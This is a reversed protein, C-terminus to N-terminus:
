QETEVTWVVTKNPGHPGLFADSTCTFVDTGDDLVVPEGNPEFLRFKDGTKLEKFEVGLWVPYKSDSLVEVKRKEESM